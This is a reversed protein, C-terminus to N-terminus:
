VQAPVLWASTNGPLTSGELGSPSSSLAVDFGDPLTMPTDSLNMWCEVGSGRRFAVVNDGGDIMTISEDHIFHAKRLSLASRYLELISEENGLQAQVSLDAFSAPQPLWADCEGFGFSSGDYSWPLPVRCGDRGKKTHGSKEWVPDDLVEVPLDWVEPLGLEDGQYVYSSGPLAMLLLTAARARQQGLDEDLIDHPGDLLWSRWDTDNPLGYRTAHRVVDHNSLVWTPTSGVAASQECADAIIGRMQAADWESALLDFNFSQHYEDTRLYRALRSSPSVWAEAVMMKEDGPTSYENLITRWGRVIEHIGDRDWFPHNETSAGEMLQGNVMDMDPFTMDKVMGHAVDVRFGDVGRDLWFQFVSEIEARVEPHEWNLDPQSSDFLHLYWEGDDLRTWASGGFISTWNTPPEAGDVGKGPRIHYRERSAHGLPSAIAEQFWAHDSSTHNPVLDVIVRIGLERAEAMMAEADDVTGYRPEIERYDSVDYGGDRLPSKYWPNIWIADVGLDRLYLLRDQLGKIDGIGDGNSDAFSRVYVQYVVGRRWWPAPSLQTQETEANSM